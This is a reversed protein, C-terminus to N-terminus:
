FLVASVGSKLTLIVEANIVQIEKIQKDLDPYKNQFFTELTNEEDQKQAVQRTKEKKFDIESV